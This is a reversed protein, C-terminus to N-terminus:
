FNRYATFMREVIANSVPTCQARAYGLMTQWFFKTLFDGDRAEYRISPCSEATGNPIIKEEDHL